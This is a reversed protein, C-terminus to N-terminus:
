ATPSESAPLAVFQLGWDNIANNLTGNVIFFARGLPVYMPEISGFPTATGSFSPSITPGIPLAPDTGQQCISLPEDLSYPGSGPLTTLGTIPSGLGFQRIQSGSHAWTVLGGGPDRCILQIVGFQGAVGALRGGWVNSPPQNRPAWYDMHGAVIVPQVSELMNPKSNKIGLRNFFEGLNFISQAM